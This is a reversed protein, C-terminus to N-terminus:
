KKALEPKLFFKNSLQQQLYLDGTVVGNAIVLHDKEDEGDLKINIVKDSYKVATLSHIKVWAGTYVKIEDDFRLEAAKVVGRRTLMPHTETVSVIKKDVLEIKVVPNKELGAVIKKIKSIKGNSLLVEKGVTLDEIPVSLGEGIAIQTGKVFCGNTRKGAGGGPGHDVECVRRNKYEALTVIPGKLAQSPNRGFAVSEEDLNRLIGKILHAVGSQKKEGGYQKHFIVVGSSLYGASSLTEEGRHDLFKEQCFQERMERRKRRMFHLMTRNFRNLNTIMEDACSNNKNGDTCLFVDIKDGM